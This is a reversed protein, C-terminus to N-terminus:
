AFDTPAQSPAPVANSTGGGCACCAQNATMGFNEFDDGYWHCTMEPYAAYWDCDFFPGDSDYWTSTTCISGYIDANGNGVLTESGPYYLCGYKGTNSDIGNNSSALHARYSCCGESDMESCAVLCRNRNEENNCDRWDSNSSACAGQRAFEVPIGDGGGIQCTKHPGEFPACSLVAKDQCDQLGRHRDAKMANRGFYNTLKLHRLKEPSPDTSARLSAASTQSVGTAALANLLAIACEFKM